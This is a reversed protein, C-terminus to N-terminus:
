LINPGSGGWLRGRTKTLGWVYSQNVKPIGADCSGDENIPRQEGIEVFCEDPAAKTLLVGDLSGLEISGWPYTAGLLGLALVSFCILAVRRFWIRPLM